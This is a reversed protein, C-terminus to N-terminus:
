PLAKWLFPTASSEMGRGEPGPMSTIHPLEKGERPRMEEMQLKLHAREAEQLPSPFERSPLSAAQSQCIMVGEKHSNDGTSPPLLDPGLSSLLTVLWGPTQWFKGWKLMSPGVDETRPFFCVTPWELCYAVCEPDCLM